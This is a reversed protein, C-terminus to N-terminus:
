WHAPRCLCHGASRAGRPDATRARRSTWRRWQDDGLILMRISSNDPPTSTFPTADSDHLNAEGMEQDVQATDSFDIQANNVRLANPSNAGEVSHADHCSHPAGEWTLGGVLEDISFPRMAHARLYM